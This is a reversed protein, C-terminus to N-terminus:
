LGFNKIAAMANSANIRNADASADYGIVLNLGNSIANFDSGLRVHQSLQNLNGSVSQSVADSPGNTLALGVENGGVIFKVTDGDAFQKTSGATVATM